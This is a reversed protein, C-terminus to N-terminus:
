DLLDDLLRQRAFAIGVLQDRNALNNLLGLGGTGGDLLEVNAPFRYHQALQEVLRVGIAEDGLLVNGLGLILIDMTYTNTKELFSSRRM